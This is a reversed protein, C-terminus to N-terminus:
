QGQPVLRQPPFLERQALSLLALTVFALSLWSWATPCLAPQPCRKLQWQVLDGQFPEPAPLLSPFPNQQGSRRKVQFIKKGTGKPLDQSQNEKLQIPHPIPSPTTPSNMSATVWGWPSPNSRTTMYPCLIFHSSPVEARGQPVCGADKVRVPDQSGLIKGAPQHELPARPGPSQTTPLPPLLQFAAPSLVLPSM